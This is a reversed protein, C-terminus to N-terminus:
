QIVLNMKSTQCLDSQRTMKVMQPNLDNKTVRIRYDRYLSVLSLVRSFKRNSTKINQSTLTTRFNFRMWVVHEVVFYGGLKIEIGCILTLKILQKLNMVIWFDTNLFERNERRWFLGRLLIGVTFNFIGPFPMPFAPYRVETVNLNALGCGHFFTFFLFSTKWM